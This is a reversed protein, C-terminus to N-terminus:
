GPNGIDEAALPTLGYPGGQFVGQATRAVEENETQMAASVLRRFAVRHADTLDVDGDPHKVDWLVGRYVHHLEDAGEPTAGSLYSAITADCEEPVARFARTLAIRVDNIADEVEEERGRVLWKARVLKAALDRM